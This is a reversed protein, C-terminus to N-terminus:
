IHGVKRIYTWNSAPEGDKFEVNEIVYYVVANPDLDYTGDLASSPWSLRLEHPHLQTMKVDPPNPIPLIEGKFCVISYYIFLTSIVM